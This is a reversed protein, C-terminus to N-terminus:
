GNKRELEIAKYSEVYLTSTRTANIIDRLAAGNKILHFYDVDKDSIEFLDDIQLWTGDLTYDYSEETMAHYYSPFKMDASPSGHKYKTMHAYYYRNGLRKPSKLILQGGAEEFNELSTIPIKKGVKLMWVHGGEQLLKCHELIFDFDKFCNYRIVLVPKNAEIM